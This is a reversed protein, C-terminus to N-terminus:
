RFSLVDAGWTTRQVHDPDDAVTDAAGILLTARDEARYPRWRAEGPGATPEAGAAFNCWRARIRRSVAKGTALGGLKFTPDKPGAM